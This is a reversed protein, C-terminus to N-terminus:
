EQLGTQFWAKGHYKYWFNPSNVTQDLLNVSRVLGFKLSWFYQYLCYFLYFKRNQWIKQWKRDKLLTFLVSSQVLHSFVLLVSVLSFRNVAIGFIKPTNEIEDIDNISILSSLRSTSFMTHNVQFNINSRAWSWPWFKIPFTSELTLKVRFIIKLWIQSLFDLSSEFLLFQSELWIKVKSQIKSELTM